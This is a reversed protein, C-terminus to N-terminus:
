VGSGDQIVLEKSQPDANITEISITQTGAVSTNNYTYTANGLVDTQVSDYYTGDVLIDITESLDNLNADVCKITFDVTNGVDVTDKFKLTLLNDTLDVPTISIIDESIMEEIFEISEPTKFYIRATVMGTSGSSVFSKTQTPTGNLLGESDDELFFGTNYQLKLVVGQNYVLHGEKDRVYFLVDFCYVKM